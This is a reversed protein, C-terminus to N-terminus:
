GDWGDELPSIFFSFSLSFFSPSFAMGSFSLPFACFFCLAADALFFFCVSWAFFHILFSHIKAGFCVLGEERGPWMVLWSSVPARRDALEFFLSIFFLLSFPFSQFLLCLFFPIKPNTTIFIYSVLYFFFFFFLFCFPTDLGSCGKAAWGLYAM